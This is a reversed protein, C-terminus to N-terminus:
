GALMQDEIYSSKIWSDNQHITETSLRGLRVEGAWILAAPITLVEAGIRRQMLNIPKGACQSPFQEFYYDLFPLLSVHSRAIEGVVQRESLNDPNTGYMREMIQTLRELDSPSPTSGIKRILRDREQLLFNQWDKRLASLQQDATELAASLASLRRQLQAPLFSEGHKEFKHQLERGAQGWVDELETRVQIEARLGSFERWDPLSLRDPRLTVIFHKSRYGFENPDVTSQPDKIREVNFNKRILSEIEPVTDQYLTVIRCASVDHIENLDIINSFKGEPRLHGLVSSTKKTRGSIYVFPINAGELLSALLEKLKETLKQYRPRHFEFERRAREPEL